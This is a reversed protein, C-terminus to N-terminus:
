SEGKELAEIERDLGTEQVLQQLLEPAKDIMAQVLRAMIEDKKASDFATQCRWCFKASVSNEVSCRPCVKKKLSDEGAESRPKIGYHEFLTEDLDRGSLHIYVSPMRSDRSWGFFERMQMEKLVLALHTARSHRLTHPSIKRKIGAREAYKRVIDGLTRRHIPGGERSPWLPADPNDKDPHMSLWLQVDPTSEFIRVRREGTKANPGRGLRVIGGYSDFQLDRIKLNVLESARPGAEYGAFLLARDRQSGVSGILTRVEAQSLIEMGYDCKPRKTSIWSVCRPYGGGNLDGTHVWKLFKKIGCKRLWTTGQNYRAETRRAWERVDEETLETYPKGGNFTRLMSVYNALTSDSAGGDRLAQLFRLATEKRDLPLAEINKRAWPELREIIESAAWPPFNDAVFDSISIKDPVTPIAKM